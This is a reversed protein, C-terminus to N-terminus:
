CIYVLIFVEAGDGVVAVELLPCLALDLGGFVEGELAEGAVEYFADVVEVTGEGGNRGFFECGFIGVKYCQVVAEFHGIVNEHIGELLMSQLTKVGAGLAFLEVWIHVLSHELCWLWILFVSDAEM